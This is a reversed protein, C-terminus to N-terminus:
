LEDSGTSSFKGPGLIERLEAKQKDTLSEPFEVEYTIYLDGFGGRNNRKPMGKGHVLKVHDCDTIDSQTVTFQHGDLHTLTVEFGTLADVLPIEMTTYLDDKDRHFVTDPDEMVLFHLDGPTMGPAEDAVKEFTIREGARTGPNIDITLEIEEQQTKSPCVRCNPNWSKGAAVCKPDRQQVQQVFGPAIQQRIVRIGPGQCEPAAKVCQEWESCLVQRVYKVELREGQYLQQLSLFLPIEVSPTRRDEQRRRGGGGGFNFGFHSFIDDFGGGGGGPQGGQEHQQVGEEGYQNYIEKLEEDSLVEYARAIEAFKEAAGEAKNKDPHYELSKQRYARKIEKLSADRSLGLIQYYDAAWVCHTATLLLLVYTYFRSSRSDKMTKSNHRLHTRSVHCM